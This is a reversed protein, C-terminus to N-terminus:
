CEPVIAAIQGAELSGEHVLDDFEEGCFRPVENTRSFGLLVPMLPRASDDASSLGSCKAASARRRIVPSRNAAAPTWLMVSSSARWAPNRNDDARSKDPM